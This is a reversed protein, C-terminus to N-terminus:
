NLAEFPVYGDFGGSQIHCWFGNGTREIMVVTTGANLTGIAKGYSNPEAMSSCHGLFNGALAARDVLPSLSLDHESPRALV